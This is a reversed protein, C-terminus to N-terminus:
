ELLGTLTRLEQEIVGNQEPTFSCTTEHIIELTSCLIDIENSIQETGNHSRIRKLNYGSQTRTINFYNEFCCYTVKKQKLCCITWLNSFHDKIVLTYKSEGLSVVLAMLLDAHFLQGEANSQSNSKPIPTSNEERQCLRFLNM